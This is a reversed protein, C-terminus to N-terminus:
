RRFIFLKSKTRCPLPVVYLINVSFAENLLTELLCLLTSNQQVLCSQSKNLSITLVSSRAKVDDQFRTVQQQSALPLRSKMNELNIEQQMFLSIKCSYLIFVLDVHNYSRNILWFTHFSRRAKFVPSTHVQVSLYRLKKTFNISLTKLHM